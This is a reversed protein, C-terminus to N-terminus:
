RILNIYGEMQVENGDEGLARVRYVYVDASQMKGNFTGDWGKSIDSTSFILEGWRNFIKFEVLDRLYWGQVHVEDNFGDGNPTFSQPMSIFSPPVVFVTLTYDDDFCGFNDRIRLNYSVDELPTVLPFSCDICSLGDVPTLEFNYSSDLLVVPLRATGGEQITTDWDNFSYPQIVTILSDLTSTCEAYNTETLTLLFSETPDITISTTTQGSPTWVYSSSDSSANISATLTQGLCITDDSLILGSSPLGEVIINSSLTDLCGLASNEVFQTITYAGQSSYSILPSQEISTDGNGFNWSFVDANLSTDATFLLEDICFLSDITGEDNKVEFGAKVRHFNIVTDAPFECGDESYLLFTSTVSFSPPLNRSLFQHELSLVNSSDVFGDGFFWVVSDVDVADLVSFVVQDGPCITNDNVVLDGTPGVVPYNRTITAACGNATSAELTVDYSGKEFITTYPSTNGIEGNDLDWLIETISGSSINSTDSFEILTGACIANLSDVNSQFGVQPPSEVTISTSLTDVCGTSPQFYYMNVNYDGGAAYVNATFDNANTTTDTQGDGFDWSFFLDQGRRDRGRFFATDGACLNNNNDNADSTRIQGNLDYYPLIFLTDGLGGVCGDSGTVQLSVFFSDIDVPEESFVFDITDFNADGQITKTLALDGSWIQWEWNTLTNSALTTDAFNLEIGKCTVTTDSVLVGVQIYSTRITDSNLTDKCGNDDTSIIQFFHESANLEDFDPIRVAVTDTNLTTIPRQLSDFTPFRFTLGRCSRADITGSADLVVENGGCAVTNKVVIDPVALRPTVLVSDIDPTACSPDQASLTVWYDGSGLTSYDYSVNTSSPTSGGDNFDWILSPAGSSATSTSEFEYNYDCNSSYEITAVAGDVLIPKTYSSICGDAEVELTINYTGLQAGLEWRVTTDASQHFIRNNDGYFHFATIRPDSDTVSLILSDGICFSSQPLDNSDFSMFDFDGGLGGVLQEGITVSLAYSTDTCGTTTSAELYIDYQGAQPFPHMDLDVISPGTGTEQYVQSGMDDYIQWRWDAIQDFPLGTTSNIARTVNVSDGFSLLTNECLNTFGDKAEVKVNLPYHEFDILATDYCVGRAASAPQTVIIYTTDLNINNIGFEVTDSENFYTQVTSRSNADTGDSFQWLYSPIKADTNVDFTVDVPNACSYEQDLFPDISLQQIFITKTVSENGCSSTLNLTVDQNGPDKFFITVAERNNTSIPVLEGRNDETFVGSANSFDWSANGGTLEEFQYSLDLCLTDPANIVATPKNITYYQISSSSCGRANTAILEIAYTGDAMYTHNPNTASSTSGDGFDWLYTLPLSDDTLNTFSVLSPATCSFEPSYEFDVTPSDFAEIMNTVSSIVECGSLSSELQLTVSFIGARSYTNIATNATSTVTNGDGFVWNANSYSLANSSLSYEFSVDFPICGEQINSTISVSPKEFVEIAINRVFAGTAANTVVATYTGPTSYVFTANETGNSVGSGNGPDWNYVAGQGDFEVILPACGSSKSARQGFLSVTLLLGIAIVLSTKYYFIRTVM